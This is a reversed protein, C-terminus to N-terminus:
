AKLRKKEPWKLIEFYASVGSDGSTKRFDPKTAFVGFFVNQKM